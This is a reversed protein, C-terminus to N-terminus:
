HTEVVNLAVLAKVKAEWSVWDLADNEEPMEAFIERMSQVFRGDELRFFYVLEEDEPQQRVKMLHLRIRGGDWKRERAVKAAHFREEFDADLSHASVRCHGSTWDFSIYPYETPNASNYKQRNAHMLRLCELALEEKRASYEHNM